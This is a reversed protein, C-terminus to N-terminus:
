SIPSVGHALSEGDANKLTLAPPTTVIQFRTVFDPDAPTWEVDTTAQTVDLTIDFTGDPADAAIRYNVILTESLGPQITVPGRRSTDQVVFYAPGVVSVKVDELASFDSAPDNEVVLEISGEDGPKVLTTQAALSPAIIGTLALWAWAGLGFKKLIAGNM